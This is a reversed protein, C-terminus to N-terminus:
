RQENVWEQADQGELLNPAIGRFEGLPRKCEKDSNDTIYQLLNEYDSDNYQNKDHELETKIRQDLYYFVELKEKKNLGDIQTLVYKIKTRMKTGLGKIDDQNIRLDFPLYKTADIM